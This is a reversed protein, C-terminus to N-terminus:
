CVGVAWSCATLLRLVLVRLLTFGNARLLETRGMEFYTFYNSHHVFGMADTEEYRVRIKIEHDKLM